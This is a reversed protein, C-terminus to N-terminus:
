FTTGTFEPLTMSLVQTRLSSLKDPQSQLVLWAAQNFSGDKNNFPIQQGSEPHTVTRMGQANIPYQPLNANPNLLINMIIEDQMVSVKNMLDEESGGGGFAFEKFAMDNVYNDVTVNNYGAQDYQLRLAEDYAHDALGMNKDLLDYVWGGPQVVTPDTVIFDRSQEGTGDGEFGFTLKLPTNTALNPLRVGDLQLKTAGGNEEIWDNVSDPNLMGHSTLGDSALNIDKRIYDSTATRKKKGDDTMDFGVTPQNIVFTKEKVKDFLDDGSMRTKGDKRNSGDKTMFTYYANTMKHLEEIDKKNFNTGLRKNIKTVDMDDLDEDGWLEEALQDRENDILLLDSGFYGGEQSRHWDRVNRLKTLQELADAAFTVGGVGVAGPVAGIGAFPAGAVAGSGAGIATNMLLRGWDTDGEYTPHTLYQTTAFLLEGDKGFKDFRAKIKNYKDLTRQGEVGNEKAIKIMSEELIKNNELINNEYIKRKEPDEENQLNTLLGMNEEQIARVKDNFSDFKTSVPSTVNSKITIGNPLVGGGSSGDNKGGVVKDFEQQQAAERFDQRIQSKAMKIREELPLSQPLDVEVLKKFEQIGEKTDSIYQEVLLNAIKNTKSRSVGAWNGRQDSPIKGIMAEKRARYDLMTESMPEYINTVYTGAEEDYYYSQHTKRAEAGFDIMPVGNLKAERIAAIEAARNKWSQNAAILGQDTEVATVADQVVLSSNEWDGKKIHDNLLTKVHGKVREGHHKDGDLLEMQSLTRDILDKSQKNKDYRQALLQAIDTKRDDVYLSPFPTLQYRSYKNAM